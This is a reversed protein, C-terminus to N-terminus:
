IHFCKCLPSELQIKRTDLVIGDIVMASPHPLLYGEKSQGASLLVHVQGGNLASEPEYRSVTSIHGSSPDKYTNGLLADNHRKIQILAFDAAPTPPSATAKCFVASALNSISSWKEHERNIEDHYSPRLQQVRLRQVPNVPNLIGTEKTQADSDSSFEDSSDTSDTEDNETIPEVLEDVSSFIAHATTLGFVENNIFIFGGLTSIRQAVIMDGRTVTVLLKLGCGARYELPTEVHVHISYGRYSMLRDDDKLVLPRLIGLSDSNSLEPSGVFVEVFGRSFTNLYALNKIAGKVVKAAKKNGCRICVTPRLKVFTEARKSRGIMCFDPEFQRGPRRLEALIPLVDDTIRPCISEVWRAHLEPPVPIDKTSGQYLRKEVQFVMSSPLSVTCTYDHTLQSKSSCATMLSQTISLDTAPTPTQDISPTFDACGTAQAQPSSSASFSDTHCAISSMSATGIDVASSATENNISSPSDVISRLAPDQQIDKQTPLIQKYSSATAEEWTEGSLLETPSTTCAISSSSNRIERSSNNPRHGPDVLSKPSLTALQNLKSQSSHVNIRPIPADVDRSNTVFSDTQPRRTAKVQAAM